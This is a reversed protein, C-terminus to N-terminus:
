SKTLCEQIVENLEEDTHFGIFTRVEGRTSEENSPEIGLCDLISRKFEALAKANEM